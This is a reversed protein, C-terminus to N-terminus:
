GFKYHKKLNEKITWVCKLGKPFVVYDGPGFEVESGEDYRVKARGEIILCTEKEPYEWEFSSTEKEWIPWEKAAKAEEDAPKRVKIM